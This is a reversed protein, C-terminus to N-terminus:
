QENVVALRIDDHEGRFCAARDSISSDVLDPGGSLSICTPEGGTHSDIVQVRRIISGECNDRPSPM